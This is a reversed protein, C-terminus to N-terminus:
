TRSTLESVEDDGSEPPFEFGVAAAPRANRRADIERKGDERLHAKLADLAYQIAAHMEDGSKAVFFDRKPPYRIEIECRFEPVGKQVRSHVNMLWVM